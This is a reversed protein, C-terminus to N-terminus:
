PNLILESLLGWQFELNSTMSRLAMTGERFDITEQSPTMFQLSNMIGRM